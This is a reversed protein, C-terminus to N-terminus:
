RAMVLKGRAKDASRNIFGVLVSKGGEEDAEAFGELIDSRAAEVLGGVFGDLAAIRDGHDVDRSVALHNAFQMVARDIVSIAVLSLAKVEETNKGLPIIEESM